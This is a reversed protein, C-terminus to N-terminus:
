SARRAKQYRLRTMHESAASKACARREEPTLTGDPDVQQEYHQLRRDRIVASQHGRAGPKSWRAQAALKARLKRQEPTM